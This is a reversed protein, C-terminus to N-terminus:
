LNSLFRRVIQEYAAPHELNPHHGADAIVVRQANSCQSVILETIDQLMQHDESGIIALTPARIEGLRALADPAFTQQVAEEVPRRSFLQATMARTRERATPNVQEPTRRSGDTWFQLSYEVAEDIAGRKLAESLALLAPPPPGSPAFGAIGTGVLILGDVMAPYQLTFDICTAGGGSCGMLFAHDLDFFRMLGHLDAAHNYDALPQTSRGFGRADYRLVQYDGAFSQFQDDWQHQDLLHGHLMVLPPGAGAIEYALTAGNIEVTSSQSQLMVIGGEKRSFLVASGLVL